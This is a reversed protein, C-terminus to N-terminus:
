GLLLGVPAELLRRVEALFQASLAGDIVRHDSSMTVKMRHGPRITEGDVVPVKRVAGVALIASDPPNIIATFEEVDFMGLNSITFTSGTFEEPKLKKDRARTALDRVEHAIDLISKRDANRVVPTILGDPIAVAIGVNVEAHTVIKDGGWSANVLPFRTLARACAKVVLDNFSVKGEELRQIQDRLDVAADMDIEVTVYYHPSTFMSESLRKAITKRMNSLPLEQGPTISPAPPAPRSAPAASPRSAPAGASRAPADAGPRPGAWSEIDRKIIRGGPGSGAVSSLDINQHAAMSRALPSAKVRGGDGGTGASASAPAAPPTAVSRPAAPVPPTQAASAVSAPQDAPAAKATAEAAAKAPEPAPSSAGAAPAAAAPKPASGAKAGEKAILPEIDENSEAIVGILAGIPAKGGAPVLIKRLVGSGLAEMEMNAKDTEIEALVDGQKVADGEKKTWKVITGEEMTPSLKALVVKSVTM